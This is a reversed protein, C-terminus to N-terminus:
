TVRRRELYMPQSSCRSMGPIYRRTLVDASTSCELLNCFCVYARNVLVGPGAQKDRLAAYLFWAPFYVASFKDPKLAHEETAKPINLGFKSFYDPLKLPDFSNLIHPTLPFQAFTELAATPSLTFPYAAVKSHYGSLPRNSLYRPLYAKSANNYLVSASRSSLLHM